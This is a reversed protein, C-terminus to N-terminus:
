EIEQLRGSIMSTHPFVQNSPYEPFETSAHVPQVLGLDDM